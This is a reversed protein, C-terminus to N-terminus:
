YEIGELEMRLELVHLYMGMAHMQEALLDTRTNEVYRQKAAEIHEYESDYIRPVECRSSIDRKNNFKKLKEYREKTQRYEDLLRVKWDEMM